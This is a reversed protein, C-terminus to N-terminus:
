SNKTALDLTSFDRTIFTAKMRARKLEIAKIKVCKSVRMHVHLILADEQHAAKTANRAGFDVKDLISMNAAVKKHYTNTYYVKKWEKKIQTYEFHSRSPLMFGLRSKKKKKKQVFHDHRWKIPDNLGRVTLTIVLTNAKSDVMM